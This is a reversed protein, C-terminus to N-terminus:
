RETGKGNLAWLMPQLKLCSERYEREPDSDAVIGCGAYLLAENKRLLASRIAVVFEGSGRGDIWGVPGAYWGRDFPEYSLILSLAAERPLGGAAPTPHLRGVLELIHGDKRLIGEVPTHLHQVNPMQLLAPTEPVSLRSCLPALTDYLARVVLRHEHREKSDALLADGLARDEDETQGRAASGALCDARVTRGDLRVLREPTAGLFCADGRAFAFITCNGYSERLRHLVQGHEPSKAAHARVRRALVLKEVAGRRVDELVAGVAEQWREAEVGEELTLTNAYREEQSAESSKSLLRRLGETAADALTQVACVATALTNVTLWTSGGHSVFLFRPLVLLADPYEQWDHGQRRAPDFAFGGLCIPSPILCSGATEVVARSLLNSWSANVELFRGAGQGVLRAAADIAVLSFGRSPQEWLIREQAEARQFLTIPDVSPAAMTVSVLVPEGCRAAQHQGRELLPHLSEALGEHCFAISM